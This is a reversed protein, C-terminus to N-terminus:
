ASRFLKVPVFETHRLVEAATWRGGAVRLILDLLQDAAAEPTVEQRLVPSLDLDVHEAMTHATQPNATLKLVPMLPNGIINGQGTTVVALGTGAASFLTLVEAAASSTNMFWLGRDPPHQASELVGEIPAQGIKTLNGFAKEEITTLGGQLNAQSPQSGLLSAHQSALFGVYEQYVRLFREREELTRFRDAVLQEAGTLESTEGFLVTGGAAVVRDVVLGVVPNAALGSTPDSESCKVALIIADLGAPEPRLESARIVFDVAKRAAREITALDGAQGIVFRAVPKGSAAIGSAVRDVWVPELGIVIVAAVNPNTGAGILVRFFVELDEGFQLDGYPHKLATTGRVIHAVNEAARNAIGDIPLLLVLNRVGVRGDPRRYGPFTYNGVTM